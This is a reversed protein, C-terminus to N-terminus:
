AALRIAGGFLFNLAFTARFAGKGLERLGLYIVYLPGGTGFLAGLLGGAFGCPAAM